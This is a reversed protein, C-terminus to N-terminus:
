TPQIDLRRIAHDLERILKRIADLLGNSPRPHWPRPQPPKPRCTM